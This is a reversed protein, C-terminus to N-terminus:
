DLVLLLLAAGMFFKGFKRFFYDVLKKDVTASELDGFVIIPAGVEGLSFQETTATFTYNPNKSKSAIQRALKGNALM